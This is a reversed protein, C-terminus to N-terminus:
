VMGRFEGESIVKIGLEEAKTLKSGPSEGAILYDTDKTISSHVKGGERKIIDKAQERTLASLTGTIVFNKGALKGTSHLHGIQLGVGVRYLKELLEINKDNNFWDYIANAVKDGVGDINTIEEISFAKVTAILDPITFLPSGSVLEPHCLPLSPIKAERFDAPPCPELESHCHGIIYKAFDYSSQEGIHRIGLAYIFRDLNINKANEISQLLNGARKEKFLDLSLFDSEKLLFIDAPDGILGADILQIVIKEGLGDIDFAKKSVFHAIHEKEIGYCNKNSCYYAAEGENRRIESGCVPCKKPFHFKKEKGTRLDKLAEVVEPIVDGAKQIIVTDGIRIDKKHIEDENHLTARSVTSGAVLTPTMVAVPTIAGTRGVQLIIDLIKSTVQQAPFKYAVAHRPAKATFGMRHQQGLDNVKVVIGDIEYPLKARKASWQDCFKIVDSITSFKEYYRCVKLGLRQLSELVEEQSKIGHLTNRDIHYFFADLNRGAVIKPDLQRITGAAANRPNAFGELKEFSKKPMYVEGSVELDVEEKLKLPISEITRVNHTVDEGTVGDGRTLARMFIGKEYQITINLGDIKLECVFEIKEPVMKSIREHWQMLEETSFVDSLSKKPTRHAVKKFKGSLVSGVRQTPSDHSIFQPFKEELEILERKLSDRVSEEVETQDLVFYKYNLDNIKEKLKEIRIKAEKAEM